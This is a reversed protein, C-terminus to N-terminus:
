TNNGKSQEGQERMWTWFKGEVASVSVTTVWFLRCHRGDEGQM